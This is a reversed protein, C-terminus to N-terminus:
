LQTERLRFWTILWLFPIALLFVFSFILKATDSVALVMNIQYPKNPPLHIFLRHGVENMRIDAYPLVPQLEPEIVNGRTITDQTVTGADNYLIQRINVNSYKKGETALVKNLILPNLGNTVYFVVFLFVITKVITYRKFIVSCLLVATQLLIFLGITEYFRGNLNLDYLPVTHGFLATDAYHVLAMVPYIILLYVVPFIVLSYIIASVLKEAASAPLILAQIGKIKDNFKSLITSAFLGGAIMSGGLLITRQMNYSLGGPSPVNTFFAASMIGAMALIGLFYLQRNEAWQKKCLLWVRYISFQM